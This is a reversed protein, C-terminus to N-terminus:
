ILLWNITLMLSYIHIEGLNRCTRQINLLGPICILSSGVWSRIFQGQMNKNRNRGSNSQTTPSVTLTRKTRQSTQIRSWQLFGRELLDQTATQFKELVMWNWNTSNLSSLCQSPLTFGPSTSKMQCTLYQPLLLALRFTQTQFLLLAWLVQFIHWSQYNHINALKLITKSEWRKWWLQTGYLHQWTALWLLPSSFHRLVTCHITARQRILHSLM